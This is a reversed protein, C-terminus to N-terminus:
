THIRVQLTVLMTFFSYYIESTMYHGRAPDWIRPIRNRAEWTAKIALIFFVHRTAFWSLMFVVFTVDCLAFMGLYRLM